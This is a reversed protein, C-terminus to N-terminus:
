ITQEAAIVPYVTEKYIVRKFRLIIRTGGQAQFLITGKIEACLGKILEMGLSGRKGQWVDPPLGVGNDALQVEIEGGTEVLSLSIEGPAENPFAYKISNTVAENVILALPIAQTVSLEVPAVNFTFLIRNSVDFSEKLYQVFERLYREMNLVRIDESQYLKQHILSMAYMRRQSDELARLADDQVYMAQSELLCMMIQLNNKVRHHVEKLLWDKEELLQTKETLLDTKEALLKREDAILQELAQNQQNIKEQNEQLQKNVRQKLRYRSFLIGLVLFLLVAVAVFLNKVFSAQRILSQQLQTKETLSKVTAAKKETEYKVDLERIEKNQTKTRKEDLHGKYDQFWHIADLYRGAMSDVRFLQRSDEVLSSLDKNKQAIELAKLLYVRANALDRQEIYLRGVLEYSYQRHGQPMLGQDDYRLLEFAYHRAQSHQGNLLHLDLLNQAFITKANYSVPPYQRLAKQAFALGEKYQREAVYCALIWNIAHIAKESDAYPPTTALELSRQFCQKATERKGLDFYCFGLALYYRSHHILHDRDSPLFDVAERYYQFAEVSQGELEYYVALHYAIPSINVPFQKKQFALLDSLIQRYVDKQGGEKYTFARKEVLKLYQLTDGHELLLRAATDLVAVKIALANGTHYFRSSFLHARALFAKNRTRGYINKAYDMRARAKVTDGLLLFAYAENEVVTGLSDLQYQEQEALREAQVMSRHARNLLEKRSTDKHVAKFLAKCAPLLSDLLHRNANKEALSPTSPPQGERCSEGTLLLLFIMGSISFLSAFRPAAM